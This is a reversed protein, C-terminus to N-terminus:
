RTILDRGLFDTGLLFGPDSGAMWIPPLLVRSLDQDDYAHRAILPAFLAACVVVLTMVVGIWVKGRLRVRARSGIVDRSGTPGSVPLPPGRAPEAPYLHRRDDAGPRSRAPSRSRGCGADAALGCGAM